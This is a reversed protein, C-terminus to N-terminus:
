TTLVDTIEKILVKSTFDTGELRCLLLKYFPSKIDRVRRRMASSFILPNIVQYMLYNFVALDREWKMPTTDMSHLLGVRHGGSGHLQKAYIPIGTPQPNEKDFDPMEGKQCLLPYTLSAYVVIRALAGRRADRPLAWVEGQTMRIFGLVANSRHRNDWASALGLMVPDRDVSEFQTIRATLKMWSLPTVHEWQMSLDTPTGKGKGKRRDEALNEQKETDSPYKKDRTTGNGYITQERYSDMLSIMQNRNAPTTILAFTPVSISSVTSDAILQAAEQARDLDDKIREQFGSSTQGIGPSIFEIVRVFSENLLRVESTNLDAPAHIKSLWNCHTLYEQRASLAPLPAPDLTEAWRSPRSVPNVKKLLEQLYGDLSQIQSFERKRRQAPAETTAQAEDTNETIKWVGLTQTKRNKEILQRTIEILSTKEDWLDSWAYTMKSPNVKDRDIFKAALSDHHVDVRGMQPAGNTTFMLLWFTWFTVEENLPNKTDYFLLPDTAQTVNEFTYKGQETAATRETMKAQLQLFFELRETELDVPKHAEEEMVEISLADTYVRDEEETIETVVKQITDHYNLLIFGNASM